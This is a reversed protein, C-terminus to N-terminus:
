LGFTEKIAEACERPTAGETDIELDYEVGKHVRGFQWRALGIVRDGRERERAELEELPAHIAVFRVDFGALVARYDAQEEEWWVDDVILNNGAAALAAIARRMGRMLREITPGSKIAVAPRGDQEVTEFIMGSSQGFASPPLMDIFADMEVHLFPERAIQQLAKAISGKGSSGVGNLIIVRAPAMVVPRGEHKSPSLM